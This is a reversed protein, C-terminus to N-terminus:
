YYAFINVGVKGFVNTNQKVDYWRRCTAFDGCFLLSIKDINEM